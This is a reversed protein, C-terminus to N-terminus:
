REHEEEPVTVSNFILHKISKVLESFQSPKPLHKIEQQSFHVLDAPNLTTSHMVLQINKLRPISKIMRACEYGNMKPMNIDIFIYDPLIETNSLFELADDGSEVQICSVREDVTKVADCFIERDDSDDDVSLILM